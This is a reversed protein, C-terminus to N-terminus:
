TEWGVHLKSNDVDCVRSGFPIRRRKDGRETTEHRHDCWYCHPGREEFRTASPCFREDGTHDYSYSGCHKCRLHDTNMGDGEPVERGMGM